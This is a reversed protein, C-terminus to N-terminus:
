DRKSKLDLLSWKELTVELDMIYFFIFFGLMLATSPCWDAALILLVLFVMRWIPIEYLRVMALPYQNEFYAGEVLNWGFFAATTIFRLGTEVDFSIPPMGKVM